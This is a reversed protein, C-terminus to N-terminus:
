LNVFSSEMAFTCFHFRTLDDQTTAKWSANVVFAKSSSQVGGVQSLALSLLQTQTHNGRLSLTEQGVESRSHIEMQYVVGILDVNGGGCGL